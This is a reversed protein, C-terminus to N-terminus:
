SAVVSYVNLEDTGITISASTVIAQLTISTIEANPYGADDNLQVGTMASSQGGGVPAYGCVGAGASSNLYNTVRPAMHFGGPGNEARNTDTSGWAFHTTSSTEPVCIVTSNIKVGVSGDESAGSTKRGAFIVRGPEIAEISVTGSALIDAASTATSTAESNNGGERTVASGVYTKLRSAATKRNNGSAGDDIIFLDVDAIAAGIDTAGDIDLDSVSTSSTNLKRGSADFFTWPM